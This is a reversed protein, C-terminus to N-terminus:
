PRVASAKIPLPETTFSRGELVSEFRLSVSGDPLTRAILTKGDEGLIECHGASELTAIGERYVPLDFTVSIRDWENASADFLRTYLLHVKDGAREIRIGGKPPLKLDRILTKPAM